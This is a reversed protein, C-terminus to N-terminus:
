GKTAVKLLKPAVTLLMSERTVVRSFLPPTAGAASMVTLLRVAVPKTSVGSSRLEAPSRCTWFARTVIRFSSPAKSALKASPPMLGSRSTVTAAALVRSKAWSKTPLVAAVPVKLELLLTVALKSTTLLRRSRPGRARIRAAAALGTSEGSSSCIATPGVSPVTPTTTRFAAAVPSAEKSSSALLWFPTASSLASAPPPTISFLKWCNM